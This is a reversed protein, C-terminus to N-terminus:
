RWRKSELVQHTLFLGFVCLTLYYVVDKTNIVGRTFIDLHNYLSLYSLVHETTTTAAEGSWGVVWLILLVGFTVVAAVIQNETLSSAVLGIALFSSAMLFIGLYGALVPLWDLGGYVDFFYPGLLTLALLLLLLVVAATYKGLVIQLTTVPSTFLLEDTGARKEEAFLRMTLLPLVFLLIVGMNSLLAPIVTDNANIGGEPAFQPSQAMQLSMDNFQNMILITFFGTVLPFVAGMAYAVPSGYYTRLEKKVIALFGRM